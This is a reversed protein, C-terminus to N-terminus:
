YEVSVTVVDSYNGATFTAATPVRGYVILTRPTGPGSGTGSGTVTSGQVGTGWITSRGSDTYLNYPITQPGVGNRYLLRANVNTSRGGDLKVTYPTGNTCTVTLTAQGDRVVNLSSHTGFPLTSAAVTCSGQLTATTRLVYTGAQSVNTACNAGSAAAFGYVANVQHEYAGPTATLQNAALRGYLIITGTYWTNRAPMSITTSANYTYNVIQSYAPDSYINYNLSDAPPLTKSMVRPTTNAETGICMLATNSDNNASRMCRVTVTTSTSPQGLPLNLTGFALIAPDTSVDCDIAAHAVGPALAWLVLGLLLTLLNRPIM